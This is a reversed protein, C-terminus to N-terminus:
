INEVKDLAIEEWLATERRAEGSKERKLFFPIILNGLSKIFIIGSVHTL